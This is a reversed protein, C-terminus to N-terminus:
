ISEMTTEYGCVRNRGGRKAAYLAVDAARVLGELSSVQEPYTVLGISVTIGITNGDGVDFSRREIETRQREAAKMALPSDTEPMIVTFEEGGYRCVRDVARAQDVLSASVGQLISDGAQHGYTDNVRKFNDIDIMLLSVPRSFRQTRIIEDQLLSYFTRHNYLDTLSDRSAMEEAAEARNRDTIDRAVVLVGAVEGKEGHYLSANYLVEILKGSEHRMTLPYNMVTGSTFAEQFGARAKDPDTFYTSFDSGILLERSVGTGWTAAENVDMIKGTVGITVLPDLSAEVLSRAYLSASRLQEEAQKSKTIDRVHLLVGQMQGAQGRLPVMTSAFYRTEDLGPMRYEVEKLEVSNGESGEKMRVAEGTEKIFPIEDLRRGVVQERTMDSIQEMLLNWETIRLDLDTALIGVPSSSVLIHLYDFAQTLSELAQNKEAVYAELEEGLINVGAMVGDLYSGDDSLTGRAKLDGAAYSFIVDLVEALRPDDHESTQSM